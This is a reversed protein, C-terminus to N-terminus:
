KQYNRVDLGFRRGPQHAQMAAYGQGDWILFVMDPSDSLKRAAMYQDRNEVRIGDLGVIIDSPDIGAKQLSETTKSFRIGTTPPTNSLSALAVKQIGGPFYTDVIKQYEPLWGEGALKRRMVYGLHASDGAKDYREDIAKYTQAADPWQQRYEKLWAYTGLGGASYTDAAEKALDEAEALRGSAAYHKVLFDCANSFYVADAKGRALLLYKEALAIDKRDNFYVSLEIYTNPDWPAKGLMLREYKQPNGQAAHAAWKLAKDHIEAFQANCEMRKTEVNNPRGEVLATQFAMEYDYPCRALIDKLLPLSNEDGVGIEYIRKGAEFSTHRPLEPHYFRHFDPTRRAIGESTEPKLAAWLKPAVTAPHERTLNETATQAEKFRPSGAKEIEITLFPYYYAASFQKHMVDTFEAAQEPVGWRNELFDELAVIAQLFHRQTRGAWLQLGVVRAEPSREYATLGDFQTVFGAYADRPKLVSGQGCAKAVLNADAAEMGLLSRSYMHGQGIGLETQTLYRVWSVGPPQTLTKLFSEAKNAGMNKALVRFHALQLLMPGSAATPETKRWDETATVELADLWPRQIGSTGTRAATIKQLAGVQDHILVLRLMEAVERNRGKAGLADAVALFATMRHILPRVDQFHGAADFWAITGLLLAADTHIEPHRPHKALEASLREDLALFNATEPTLLATLMDPRQGPSPTAAEGSVAKCWVQYTAPDWASTSLAITSKASGAAVTYSVPEARNCEATIRNATTPQKILEPHLLFVIQDCVEMITWAEETFDDQAEPPAPRQSAPTGWRALNVLDDQFQSYGVAAVAILILSLILGRSIKMGCM